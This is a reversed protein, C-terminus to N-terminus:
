SDLVYVRISTIISKYIEIVDTVVLLSSVSSQQMLCCQSRSLAIEGHVNIASRKSGYVLQQPRFSISLDYKV